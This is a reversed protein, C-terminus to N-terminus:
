KPECLKAYEIVCESKSALLASDIEEFIIGYHRNVESNVKKFWTDYFDEVMTTASVLRKIDHLDGAGMIHSSLTSITGLADYITYYEDSDKDFMIGEWKLENLLKLACNIEEPISPLQDETYWDVEREKREDWILTYKSLDECDPISGWSILDLTIPDPKSWKIIPKQSDGTNDSGVPTNNISEM